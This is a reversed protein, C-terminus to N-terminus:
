RGPRATIESALMLVAGSPARVAWRMSMRGSFFTNPTTSYASAAYKRSRQRLLFILLRMQQTGVFSIEQDVGDFRGLGAAVCAPDAVPCSNNPDSVLKAATCPNNPESGM